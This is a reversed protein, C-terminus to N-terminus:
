PKSDNTYDQPANRYVYRKAVFVFLGFNLFGLGALLFYFLDLRSRNLYKNGLCKGKSFYEVVYIVGSSIFNGIGLNCICFVAGLSRKPIPLQDYLFHQLGVIGFAESVGGLIYQPLMWWVRIPLIAKSNYLLNHDSALRLRKTEFLAAVLMTLVSFFLGVGIRQLMTIGPFKGARRVSLGDYIPIILIITFGTICQLSAPPITFHHNGITISRTLTTAQKTFFTSLQALAVSNYLCTLWIPTLSLVQKTEEVQNLTSLRWPDRTKRSADIEDIIM